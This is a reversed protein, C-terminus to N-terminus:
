RACIALLYQFAVNQGVHSEAAERLISLLGGMTLARTWWLDRGWCQSVGLPRPPLSTLTQCESFRSKSAHLMETCSFSDKDSFNFTQSYSCVCM